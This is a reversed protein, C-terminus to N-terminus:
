WGLTKQWEEDTISAGPQLLANAVARAAKMEDRAAKVSSGRKLGNVVHVHHSAARALDGILKLAQEKNM